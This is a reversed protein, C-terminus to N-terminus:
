LSLVNEVLRNRTGKKGKGRILATSIWFGYRKNQYRESVVNFTNSWFIDKSGWPPNKTQVGM